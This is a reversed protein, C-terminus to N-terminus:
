DPQEKIGFDFNKMFEEGPMLARYLEPLASAPLRATEPQGPVPLVLVSFIGEFARDWWPTDVAGCRHYFGIRRRALAADPAIEPLESEIFIPRGEKEALQALLRTGLGKNRGLPRVAFYDLLVPGTELPCAILLYAALRALPAAGPLESEPLFVGWPRYAGRRMIELAAAKPRLEEPPFDRALDTDYIEDLEAETLCRREM